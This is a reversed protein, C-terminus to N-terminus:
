CLQSATPHPSLVPATEAFLWGDLYHFVEWYFLTIVLIFIDPCQPNLTMFSSFHSAQFISSLYLIRTVPFPFRSLLSHLSKTSEAVEEFLLM